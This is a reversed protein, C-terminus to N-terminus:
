TRQTSIALSAVNNYIVILLVVGFQKRVTNGISIASQYLTSLFFFEQCRLMYAM